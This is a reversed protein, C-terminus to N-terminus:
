TEDYVEVEKNLQKWVDCSFICESGPGKTRLPCLVGWRRCSDDHDACIEEIETLTLDKIKKKM